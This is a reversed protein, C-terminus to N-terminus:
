ASPKSKSEVYLRYFKKPYFVLIAIGFALIGIGLHFGWTRPEDDLFLFTLGLVIYFLSPLCNFFVASALGSHKILEVDHEHYAEEGVTRAVWIKSANSACIWPFCLM